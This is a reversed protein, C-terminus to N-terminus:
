LENNINKKSITVRIMEIIMKKVQELVRNQKQSYQTFLKYCDKRKTTM